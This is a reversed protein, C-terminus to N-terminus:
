DITDIRTKEKTIEIRKGHILPSFIALSIFNTKLKTDLSTNCQDRHFKDGKNTIKHVLIIAHNKTINLKVVLLSIEFKNYMIERATQRTFNSLNSIHRTTNIGFILYM